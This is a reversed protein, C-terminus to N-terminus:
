FIPTLVVKTQSVTSTDIGRNRLDTQIRAVGRAGGYLRLLHARHQWCTRTEGNLIVPEAGPISPRYTLTLQWVPREGCGTQYCEM